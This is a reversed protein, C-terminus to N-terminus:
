NMRVRLGPGLVQFREGAPLLGEEVGIQMAIYDGTGRRFVGRQPDVLHWTGNHYFEAWNHYDHSNVIGSERSVFGGAVRAPIGAARCLAAFLDAFETCDGARTKFAHLAGRDRAAVGSSRLNSSVWAFIREATPLTGRSRLGDALQKIEPRDSEVFRAPKLWPDRDPLRVRRPAPYLAIEAEVNVVRSAFPALTQVPLHIVRNGAADPMIEHPQDVTIRLCNQTANEAVPAFLRVWAESIPRNTPNHVTFSYRLLKIAPAATPPRSPYLLFLFWLGVFSLGLLTTIRRLTRPYAGHHGRRASIGAPRNLELFTSRM